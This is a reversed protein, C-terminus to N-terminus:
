ERGSEPPELEKEKSKLKFKLTKTQPRILQVGALAIRGGIMVLIALLGIALAIVGIREFMGGFGLNFSGEGTDGENTGEELHIITDVTDTNGNDDTVQLAVTYDGYSAYDHSPSRQDSTAGDGFDWTYSVIAADGEMSNDNFLVSTGESRWEFAAAPEKVEEPAWEDLQAAPDQFIGYATTFSVLLIALGLVLLGTGWMLGYTEEKIKM